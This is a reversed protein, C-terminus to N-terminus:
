ALPPVLDILGSGSARLRPRVGYREAMAKFGDNDMYQKFLESDDKMVATIVRLLVKDYEVRMNERDSNRQANKFATDAAVRAPITETILQLVRDADEWQIGGYLDNFLRVINSLRDLEPEPQHGGAGTPVPDIEAGEDPLMIKRMAQREVRCSDMDIADLIGKSLDEEQPAPLKAILFNLFISRKEWDANTHPLVCSLFAYTRVFGKAKGKFLVQEDEDLESLYVAM